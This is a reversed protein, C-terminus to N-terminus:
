KKNLFLYLLDNQKNLKINYLLLLIKNDINQYYIFDSKFTVKKQKFKRINKIYKYCVVFRSFGDEIIGKIEGKLNRLAM